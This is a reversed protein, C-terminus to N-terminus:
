RDGTGKSSSLDQWEMVERALRMQETISGFAVGKLSMRGIESMISPLIPAPPRTGLESGPLPIFHHIRVEGGMNAIRAIAALTQRQNRHREGPLGLIFDVIPTLGHSLIIEVARYVTELDHGRRIRKLTEESGSQAGISIKRNDALESIIEVMRDTVFDPRGESPFTAFFIRKRGELNRLAGLLEEVPRERPRRGASGYGLSNPSIFRFDWRKGMEILRKGAEAVSGVSRHRLRGGFVVPVSCYSCGFLCGRTIEIPPYLHHRFSVPPFSDLDPLRVGEIIRGSLSASRDGKTLSRVMNPLSIEGEGRVVYDFGMELTNLPAGTAHPGGAILVVGKGYRRRIRAVLESAWRARTSLFSLCAIVQGEGPRYSGIDRLLRGSPVPMAKIGSGELSNLLPVLSYWNRKEFGLLVPPEKM